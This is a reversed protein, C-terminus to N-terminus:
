SVRARRPRRRWRTYLADGLAGGAAVAAILVACAAVHLAVEPLPTRGAAELLHRPTM